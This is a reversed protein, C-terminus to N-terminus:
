PKLGLAKLADSKIQTANRVSTKFTSKAAKKAVDTTAVGKASKYADRASKMAARFTTLIAVREAKSAAIEAKKADKQAQSLEPKVPPLGLAKLADTKIQTANRVATKYVLKAAKKAVETTALEKASKYTDKASKVAVRFTEMIAVRQVKYAAIAAKHAAKQADTLQTNGSGDAITTSTTTSGSGSDSSAFAASAGNVLVLVTTVAVILKKKMTTEGIHLGHSVFTM